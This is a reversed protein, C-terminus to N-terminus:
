QVHVHYFRRSGTAGADTLTITGAIGALTQVVTWNADSLSNKYELIYSFGVQTPVSLTFTTGTRHPNSIIPRAVFNATYTTAVTPAVIHSIKGSDSWSSWVYQIGTGGSQPTTTAITHSSGPV